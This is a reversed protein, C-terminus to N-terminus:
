TIVTSILDSMKKNGKKIEELYPEVGKYTKNDKLAKVLKQETLTEM